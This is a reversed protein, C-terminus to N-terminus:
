RQSTAREAKEYLLKSQFRQSESIREVEVSMADMSQQLEQLQQQLQASMGAAGVEPRKELRRAWMRAFPGLFVIAVLMGMLGFATEQAREAATIFQPPLATSTITTRNGDKEIIWRGGGRPIPVPAAPLPPVAPIAPIAAVAGGEGVGGAQARAPATTAQFAHPSETMESDM